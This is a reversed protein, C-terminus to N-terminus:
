SPSPGARYPHSLTVDTGAQARSEAGGEHKSPNKVAAPHEQQACMSVPDQWSSDPAATFCASMVCDWFGRIQRYVFEKSGQQFCCCSSLKVKFCPKSPLCQLLWSLKKKPLSVSCSGHYGKRTNGLSLCALISICKSHIQRHPPQQQQKFITINPISIIRCSSTVHLYSKFEKLM